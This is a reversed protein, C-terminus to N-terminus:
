YPAASPSPAPEGRQVLAVQNQQGQFGQKPCSTRFCEPVTAANTVSLNANM